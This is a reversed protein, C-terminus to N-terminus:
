RQEFPQNRLNSTTKKLNMNKAEPNTSTSSTISFILALTYMVYLLHMYKYKKHYIYICVWIHTYLHLVQLSLISAPGRMKAVYWVGGAM